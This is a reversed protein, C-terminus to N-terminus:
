EHNAAISISNTIYATKKGGDLFKSKNLCYEQLYKVATYM